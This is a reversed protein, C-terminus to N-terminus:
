EATPLSIAINAFINPLRSRLEEFRARSAHRESLADRAERELAVAQEFGEMLATISAEKAAIQPATLHRRMSSLERRRLSAEGNAARAAEEHPETDVPREMAAKYAEVTAIARRVADLHEAVADATLFLRGALECLDAADDAAPSGRAVRELLQAYDRWAKAERERLKTLPDTSTRAPPM